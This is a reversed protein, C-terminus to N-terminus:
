HKWRWEKRDKDRDKKDCEIRRKMREREGVRYVRM